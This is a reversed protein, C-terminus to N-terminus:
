KVIDSRTILVFLRLHRHLNYYIRSYEHYKRIGVIGAVQEPRIGAVRESAIRGSEDSLSISPLAVIDYRKQNTM